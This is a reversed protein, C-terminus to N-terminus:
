GLPSGCLHYRIKLRKEYLTVTHNGRKHYVARSIDKIVGILVKLSILGVSNIGERCLIDEVSHELERREEDYRDCHFM